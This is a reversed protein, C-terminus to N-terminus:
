TAELVAVLYGEHVDVSMVQFRLTSDLVSTEVDNQEIDTGGVAALQWIDDPVYEAGDVATATAKVQYVWATITGTTGDPRTFTWTDGGQAQMEGLGLAAEAMKRQYIAALREGRMM